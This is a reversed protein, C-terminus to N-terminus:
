KGLRRKLALVAMQPTMLPQGQTPVAAARMTASRAQAITSAPQVASIFAEILPVALVIEQYAMQVDQCSPVVGCVATLIPSVASVAQNVYGEIQALTTAGTTDSAGAAVAANLTTVDAAALDLYGTGAANTLMAAQAASLVSPFAAQILPVELKFASVVTAATDAASTLGSSAGAATCGVFATATLAGTFLIMLNRRQLEM